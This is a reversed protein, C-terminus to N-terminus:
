NLPWKNEGTRKYIMKYKRLPNKAVPDKMVGPAMEGIGKEFVINNEKSGNYEILGLNPINWQIGDSSYAYCVVNHSWYYNAGEYWMKFIHEEEDYYVSGSVIILKDGGPKQFPNLEILPNNEYKVPKNMVRYVNELNELIYDDAFLQKITGIKLIFESGNAVQLSYSKAVFFAM